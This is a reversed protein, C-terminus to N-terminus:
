IVPYKYSISCVRHMHRFVLMGHLLRQDTLKLAVFLQGVLVAPRQAAEDGLNTM